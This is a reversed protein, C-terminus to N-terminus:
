YECHIVLKHTAEIASNAINTNEARCVVDREHDNGKPRFEIRSLTVTETGDRLFQLFFQLTNYTCKFNWVHTVIKMQPMFTLFLTKLIEVKM